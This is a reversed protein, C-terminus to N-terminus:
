RLYLVLAVRDKLNLKAFINTLHTKVTRESIEFREAIQRNSLGESVAIAVEKERDTLSQLLADVDKGKVSQHALAFTQALMSPPFWSQGNALLRLLQQYNSAQMYSNCYARAGAEVCELMESMNPLDSCVGVIRNADKFWKTIWDLDAVEPSSIHLLSINALVSGTDSLSSQYDFPIEIVRNMHSQFSRSTSYVRLEM